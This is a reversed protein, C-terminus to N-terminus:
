LILTLSLWPVNIKEILKFFRDEGLKFVCNDILHKLSLKKYGKVGNSLLFYMSDKFGEVDTKAMKIYQESEYEILEDIIKEKLERNFNEASEIEEETFGTFDNNIIKILDM